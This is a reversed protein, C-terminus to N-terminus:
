TGGGVIADPVEFFGQRGVFPVPTALRRVNGTIWMFRGPTYDGFAFETSDPPPVLPNGFFVSGRRTGADGVAVCDLVDVVAVIHGRAAMLREVMVRDADAENPRLAALFPKTFCLSELERTWQKAAHIALPGRHTTPWSRTENRKAGVAVLTAWPQWLSICKM